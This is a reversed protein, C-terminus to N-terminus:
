PHWHLTRQSLPNWSLSFSSCSYDPTHPASTPSWPSSSVLCLATHTLFLSSDLSVDPLVSLLGAHRSGLSTYISLFSQKRPFGCSLHTLYVLEVEKFHVQEISKLVYFETINSCHIGVKFIRSLTQVFTGLTWTNWFNFGLVSCTHSLPTHFHGSPCASSDGAGWKLVLARMEGSAPLPAQQPSVSWPSGILIALHWWNYSM